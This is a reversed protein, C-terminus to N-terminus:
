CFKFLKKPPARLIRRLRCLMETRPKHCGCIMSSGSKSSGLNSIRARRPGLEIPGAGPREPGGRDRRADTWLFPTRTSLKLQRWVDGLPSPIRRGHPMTLKHPTAASPCICRGTRPSPANLACGGSCVGTPPLTSTDKKRPGQLRPCLTQPGCFRVTAM